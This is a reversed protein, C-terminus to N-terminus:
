SKTLFCQFYDWILMKWPNQERVARSKDDIHPIKEPHRLVNKRTQDSNSETTNEVSLRPVSKACLFIEPKTKSFTNLNVRIFLM